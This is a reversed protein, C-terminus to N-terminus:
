QGTLSRQTLRAGDSHQRDRRDHDRQVHLRGMGVHWIRGLPIRQGIAVTSSATIAHFDASALSYLAPLTQTAGTLSAHGALSRGQDVIAVIGAWSPAGLSTGGVVQWSGQPATTQGWFNQQGSPPTEYVQVGTNPDGVFAVDPTSRQGTTQVTQQYAPQSEFQSYGGGSASWATESAYGGAGNLNLTTGGVALVDPSAAPYDVGPNDGSAAIYTIGATTFNSDYATEGSFEYFGWSMSVVAVGPTTSATNVATMLDQLQQNLTRGAAAEVVVINAGPAMAHAWEVDLSEELAWGNDTQNGAQNIVNLTPDSLGYQQDFTHLDSSLNPDHYMEILAITEGTGDGKVTTGTSTKFTIAGLGYAGAIQAPTYGSLLCRDDLYDMIPRLGRRCRKRM